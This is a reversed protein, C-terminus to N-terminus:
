RTLISWIDINKPYGMIQYHIVMRNPNFTGTGAYGTTGNNFFDESTLTGQACFLKCNIDWDILGVRVTNDGTKYVNCNYHKIFYPNASSDYVHWLGTVDDSCKGRSTITFDFSKTDRFTSTCKLTATYSSDNPLNATFNFTFSDGNSVTVSSPSCTVGAPLKPTVTIKTTTPSDLHMYLKAAFTTAVGPTVIYEQLNTIAYDSYYGPIPTSTKSCSQLLLAGMIILLYFPKM